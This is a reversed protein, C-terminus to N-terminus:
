DVTLQARGWSPARAVTNHAGINTKIQPHPRTPEVMARLMSASPCSTDTRSSSASASARRSFFWSWAQSSWPPDNVTPVASSISARSSAPMSRASANTAAVSPSLVLRTIACIALRRKLTGVTTTRTSSGARACHYSSCPRDVTQGVATAISMSSLATRASTFCYRHVDDYHAGSLDAPVEGALEDALAVLDRHDLGIGRAERHDLLLELVRDVVPVPRLQPDQLPGSDRPGLHHDGHRAVVLVVDEDALDRPLLVAHLPHDRAAVVRPIKLVELQEPDLRRHRRRVQDEAQDLVLHRAVPEQM